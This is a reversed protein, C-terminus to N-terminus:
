YDVGVPNRPDGRYGPETLFLAIEKCGTCTDPKLDHNKHMLHELARLACKFARRYDDQPPDELM